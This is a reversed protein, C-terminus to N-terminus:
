PAFATERAPRCDLALEQADGARNVAYPVTSRVEAAVLRTLQAFAVTRHLYPPSAIWPDSRGGARDRDWLIDVIGRQLCGVDDLQREMNSPAIRGDGVVEGLSGIADTDILLNTAFVGLVVNPEVDLNTLEDLEESFQHQGRFHPPRPCVRRCVRPTL